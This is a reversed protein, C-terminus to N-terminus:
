NGIKYGSITIDVDAATTACRGTVATNATSTFLPAGGANLSFGGGTAAAYGQIKVTTGDRIEVKTATASANTVLVSTVAIRVGAGAAAVLDAATTNTYNAAGRM